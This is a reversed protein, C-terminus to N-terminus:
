ELTEVEISANTLVANRLKGNDTIFSNAVQAKNFTLINKLESSGFRKEVEEGLARVADITNNDENIYAVIKDGVCVEYANPKNDTVYVYSM